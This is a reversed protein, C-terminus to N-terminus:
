QFGGTVLYAIVFPLVVLVCFYFVLADASTRTHRSM